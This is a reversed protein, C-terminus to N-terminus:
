IMLDRYVVSCFCIYVGCVSDYDSYMKNSRHYFMFIIMCRICVYIRLGMNLGSTTAIM